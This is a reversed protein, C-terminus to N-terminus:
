MLWWPRHHHHSTSSNVSPANPTPSTPKPLESPPTPKHAPPTTSSHPIPPSRPTTTSSGTSATSTSTNPHIPRTALHRNPLDKEARGGASGTISFEGYGTRSPGDPRTWCWQCRAQRGVEDLFCVGSGSSSGSPRGTRLKWSRSVWRPVRLRSIMLKAPWCMSFSVVGVGVCRRTKSSIPEGM